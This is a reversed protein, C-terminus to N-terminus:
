CSICWQYSSQVPCLVLLFVALLETLCSTKRAQITKIREIVFIALGVCFTKFLEVKGIKLGIMEDSRLGTKKDRKFNLWFWFAVWITNLFTWTVILNMPAINFWATPTGCSADPFIKLYLSLHRLM